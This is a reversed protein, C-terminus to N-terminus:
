LLYRAALAVCSLACSWDCTMMLLLLFSPLEFGIARAARGADAHQMAVPKRVFTAHARFFPGLLKTTTTCTAPYPLFSLSHSTLPHTVSVYLMVALTSFPSLSTIPCAPVPTTGGRHASSQALNALSILYISVSRGIASMPARYALPLIVHAKM